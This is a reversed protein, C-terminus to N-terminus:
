HDNLRGAKYASGEELPRVRNGLGWWTLFDAWEVPTDRESIAKHGREVTNVIVSSKDESGWSATIITIM